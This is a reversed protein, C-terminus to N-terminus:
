ANGISGSLRAINLVEQLYKPFIKPLPSPKGSGGASPQFIKSSRSLTHFLQYGDSNYYNNNPNSCAVKHLM